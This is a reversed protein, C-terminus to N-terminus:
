NLGFVSKFEKLELFQNFSITFKCFSNNYEALIANEKEAQRENTIQKIKHWNTEM